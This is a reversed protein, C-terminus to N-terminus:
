KLLTLKRTLSLMKGNGDTHNLKFLYVGSSLGAAALDFSKAFMGASLYESLLTLIKEGQINYLILEVQGDTPLSFSITTSPNFPNPYNQNLVFDGPTGIEEYVSTTSVLKYIASKDGVA